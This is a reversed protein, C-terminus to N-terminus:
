WGRPPAPPKAFNRVPDTSAINRLTETTQDLVCAAACVKLEVPPCDRGAVDQPTSPFISSVTLMISQFLVYPIRFAGVFQVAERCQSDLGGESASLEELRQLWQGWTSEWYEPRPYPQRIQKEREEEVEGVGFLGDPELADDDDSELAHMMNQLSSAAAAAGVMASVEADDEMNGDAERANEARTLFTNTHTHM